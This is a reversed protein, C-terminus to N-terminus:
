PGEKPFRRAGHDCPDGQHAGIARLARRRVHIEAPVYLHCLIMGRVGFGVRGPKDGPRAAFLCLANLLQWIVVKVVSDAYARLAFSADVLHPGTVAIIKQPEDFSRLADMPVCDTVSAAHGYQWQATKKNVQFTGLPLM